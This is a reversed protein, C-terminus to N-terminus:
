ESRVENNDAPSGMAGRARELDYNAGLRTFIKCAQSLHKKRDEGRSHRGMEYHALGLEYPMGLKEASALSKRWSTWAKRQKGSLWDCLGQWLQCSPQGIPFVHAYKRLHRCVQKALKAHQKQEDAPQNSSAELLSLFVEAVSHLTMLSAYRPDSQAFLQLAAEAAKEAEKPKGRHLQSLAMVAYVWTKEFRHEDLLKGFDVKNLTYLAKDTKGLRLQNIARGALGWCKNLADDRHNASQYVNMYARQSQVFDGRFLSLPALSSLTLEWRRWDGVSQFIELAQASADETKKWQGIGLHYIATVM